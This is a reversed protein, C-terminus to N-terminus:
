RLTDLVARIEDNTPRKKYDSEVLAWTVRGAKDIVYVTPHPIGEVKQGAYAPDRLGYADIVRSDPDSLLPFKVEGRGDQAIKKAFERSQEH